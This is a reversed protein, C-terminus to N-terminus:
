ALVQPPVLVKLHGPGNVCGLPRDLYGASELRRNALEGCSVLETVCKEVVCLSEM